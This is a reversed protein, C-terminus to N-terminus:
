KIKRWYVRKSGKFTYFYNGFYWLPYFVWGIFFFIIHLIYWGITSGDYKDGNPYKYIIVKEFQEEKM